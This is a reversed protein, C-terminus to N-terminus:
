RKLVAVIVSKHVLIRSNPEPDLDYLDFLTGYYPEVSPFSGGLVRCDKGTVPSRQKLRSHMAILVKADCEPAHGRHELLCGLVNAYSWIQDLARLGRRRGYVYLDSVPSSFVKSIFERSFSPDCLEAKMAIDLLQRLHPEDLKGTQFKDWGCPLAFRAFLMEGSFEDRQTFEVEVPIAPTLRRGCASPPELVDNM